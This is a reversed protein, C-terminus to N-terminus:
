FEQTFEFNVGEEDEDEEGPQKHSTANIDDEAIDIFEVDCEEREDPPLNLCQLNM